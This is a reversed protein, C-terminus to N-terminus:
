TPVLVLRLLYRPARYKYNFQVVHVRGKLAELVWTGPYGPYGTGPYAQTHM